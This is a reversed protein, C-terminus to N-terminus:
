AAGRVGIGLDRTTQCRHREHKGPNFYRDKADVSDAEVLMPRSSGARDMWVVETGCGYKCRFVRHEGKPLSLLFEVVKRHLPKGEVKEADTASKILRRLAYHRRCLYRRYPVPKDCNPHWCTPLM